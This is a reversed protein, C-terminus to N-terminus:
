CYQLTQNELNFAYLEMPHLTTPRRNNEKQKWITAIDKTDIGADTPPCPHWNSVLADNNNVIIDNAINRKKVTKLNNQIRTKDTVREDEGSDIVEWSDIECDDSALFRRKSYDFSDVLATIKERQKAEM